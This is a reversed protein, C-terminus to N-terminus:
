VIREVIRLTKGTMAGARAQLGRLQGFRFLLIAACVFGTRHRLSETDGAVHRFDFNRTRMEEECIVADSDCSFALRKRVSVHPKNAPQTQGKAHVPNATLIQTDPISVPM